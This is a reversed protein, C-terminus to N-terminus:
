RQYQYAIEITTRKSGVAPPQQSNIAPRSRETPRTNGELKLYRAMPGGEFAPEGRGALGTRRRDRWIETPNSMTAAVTVVVTMPM